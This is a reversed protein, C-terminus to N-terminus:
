AADPGEKKRGAQLIVFVLTLLAAGALGAGGWPFRGAGPGALTVAGRIAQERVGGDPAEERIVAFVPYVSGARGTRNSVAAEVTTPRGPFVTVARDPSDCGLDDPLLVRVRVTRPEGGAEIRLRVQLRGQERITAPTLFAKVPPPAPAPGFTVSGVSVTSFPYGNRDRYRVRLEAVHTGLAPSEAPFILEVEASSGPPLDPAPAAAAQGGLRGEVAIGHAPEDGSNRVVVLLAAEDGGVHTLVATELRITGACLAQALLLLGGATWERIRM